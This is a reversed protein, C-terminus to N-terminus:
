NEGREPGADRPAERDRAVEGSQSIHLGVLRAVLITLYLQGVIAEVSSALRTVAHAPVVDGFGLTMLTVFSFYLFLPVGEQASVPATGLEPAIHFSGSGLLAYLLQYLVAWTLGVMLYVTAAGIIKDITVREGGLVDLLMLIMALGLFALVAAICLAALMPRQALDVFSLVAEASVALVALALSPIRILPLRLTAARVVALFLLAFLGDWVHRGWGGALMWPYLLGLAIISALILHYRM